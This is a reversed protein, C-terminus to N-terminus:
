FTVGYKIIGAPDRYVKDMAEVAEDFPVVPDILGSVDLRRRELQGVIGSWARAQDWRPYDRPTHGWGCGHPVVVNLRNHHWERGLWLGKSEGQYFGASCVTGAVRTCKIATELAPYAGSVEIAVDVGKGGTLEHVRLAANETGPDFAHDAGHSLAWDRRKALPDIAFVMGAGSQRAMQVAILGIAGLGVVAVTDAYRVNSERVCHFSVYAPEVCLADLPDITGLPWLTDESSTNTERVKFHGIVRDGPKWKTVASGVETVTGVGSEGLPRPPDYASPPEVGPADVFLRMDTDFKAGHFNTGSMAGMTTGHKGSAFETRIRVEREGLPKEEYEMIAAEYPKPAFLGKPM